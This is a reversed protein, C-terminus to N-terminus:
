TEYQENLQNQFNRGAVHTVNLRWPDVGNLMRANLVFLDMEASGFSGESDVGITSGCTPCFKHAVAKSAFRYM